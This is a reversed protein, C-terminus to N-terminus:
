PMLDSLSSSPDDTEGDYFKDSPYLPAPTGNLCAPWAVEDYGLSTVRAQIERMLHAVRKADASSEAFAPTNLILVLFGFFLIHKALLQTKQLM